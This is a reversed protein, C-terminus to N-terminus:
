ERVDFFRMANEKTRAATEELTLGKIEAVKAATYEVYPPINRKGRFPVPTLYPSDTEVLLPNLSSSTLFVTSAIASTRSLGSSLVDMSCAFVM